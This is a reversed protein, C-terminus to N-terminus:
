PDSSFHPQGGIVCGLIELNPLSRPDAELPDEAWVTLDAPAGPVLTGAPLPAGISWAAGRMFARLADKVGIRQRPFWGGAPQGHQDTRLTAAALSRRPDISEVPVDSGCALAVGARLLSGLPYANKRAQPWHRDAIEIDGILQCPQVSAVIGARAMRRIDALRVCQAHEIRHPLATSAVRQAARIATVAEHVARDGIAHIWAAWGHRAAKVVAERLEAGAVVPVGCYEGRGPYPDFMYATQSGLAGDAFIKIGGIRLWDDGLGSALGLRCAHDLDALPVAHVVRLGLRGEVRLRLLQALSVGDDMAHVGVIGHSWAVRCAVSLARDIARRAVPDTRQALERLPDPLLDVAAEQVIGTPLGRADRLYRGGPPDPRDPTIGSRRMAETNLWVTHGDRSRVMVPRGPVIHDLDAARPLGTRWRNHDFGRAMVWEGVRRTRAAARITQLVATLSRAASVDIVLEHGLAWYFFHTHCDVLGPTIVARGLDV